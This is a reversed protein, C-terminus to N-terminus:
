VVDSAALAIVLMGNAPLLISPMARNEGTFYNPMGIPDGGVYSLGYSLGYRGPGEDIIKWISGLLFDVEVYDGVQFRRDTM